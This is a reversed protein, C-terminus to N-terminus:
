RLPSSNLIVVPMSISWTGYRPEAGISMSKMLMDGLPSMVMFDLIVTFQTLALLAIVLKQYSSFPVEKKM